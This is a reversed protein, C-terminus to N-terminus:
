LGSPLLVEQALEDLQEALLAQTSILAALQHQMPDTSHRRWVEAQASARLGKTRRTRLAARIERNLQRDDPNTTVFVLGDGPRTIGYGPHRVPFQIRVDTMLDRIIARSVDRPRRAIGLKRALLGDGIGYDRPMGHEDVLSSFIVRDLVEVKAARRAQAERERQLRRDGRDV